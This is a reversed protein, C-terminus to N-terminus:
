KASSISFSNTSAARVEVRSYDAQLVIIIQDPGRPNETFLLFAQRTGIPAAPEHATNGSDKGPLTGNAQVLGHQRAHAVGQSMTARVIGTDEQISVAIHAYTQRM